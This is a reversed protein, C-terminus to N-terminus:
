ESALLRVLMKGKNKGEFLQQFAAPTSEIGDVIQDANVIRGQKLWDGLQEIAAPYQDVYDSFMFGEIKARKTVIEFMNSPGSVPTTAVYQAVAGCLVIRARMRLCAMATDLVQGGVNDFYIDIGDPCVRKIENKLDDCTKYNIAVDYGLTDVLWTCKDDSGTLGIARCGLAKAIQGAASGVAGAAASVLVIEGPRPKGIDVLGFYATLGTPGLIGLYYPLPFPVDAPLRTLFDTADSISYEEWANRGMVIDSEAYDPHRSEIVRGLTISVVPADLDMAQLYNDSAGENMWQRFGADLSLYLNQIILEGDHIERLPTHVVRFDSERPIGVPRGALLVQRNITM